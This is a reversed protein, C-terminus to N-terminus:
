QWIAGVSKRMRLAVVACLRQMTCESDTLAVLESIDCCTAMARCVAHRLYTEGPQVNTAFDRVREGVGETPISGLTTLAEFQVARSHSNLLTVIRSGDVTPADALIRLTQIQVQEEPDSLLGYIAEVDGHGNRLRQGLGWIAHIRRLLPASVNTAAAMLVDDHGLEVLRFQAQLRVRQDAGAMATLLRKKQPTPVGNAMAPSRKM